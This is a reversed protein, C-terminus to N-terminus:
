LPWRLSIDCGSIRRSAGAVGAFTPAERPCTTLARGCAVVVLVGVRWRGHRGLGGEDVERGGLQGKQAGGEAV